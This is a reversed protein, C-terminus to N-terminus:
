PIFAARLRDTCVHGSVAQTIQECRPHQRQLAFELLGVNHQFEPVIRAADRVTAAPSTVDVVAKTSPLTRTCSSPDCSTPSNAAHAAPAFFMKSAHAAGPPFVSM